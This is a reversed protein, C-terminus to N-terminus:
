VGGLEQFAPGVAFYAPGQVLYFHLTRQEFTNPIEIPSQVTNLCAHPGEFCEACNGVNCIGSAPEASHVSWKM